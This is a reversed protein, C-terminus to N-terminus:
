RRQLSIFLLGIFGERKFNVIGSNSTKISCLVFNFIFSDSRYYQYLELEAEFYKRFEEEDSFNSFIPIAIIEKTKPNYYCENGCDLEQAIRKIINLKPNDM